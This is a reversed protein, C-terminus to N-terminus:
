AVEVKTNRIEKFLFTVTKNAEYIEALSEEMKKKAKGLQESVASLESLLRCKEEDMM